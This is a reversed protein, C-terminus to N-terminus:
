EATLVFYRGQTESPDRQYLYTSGPALAEAYLVEEQGDFAVTVAYAESKPLYFKAIGQRNTKSRNLGAIRVEAGAVPQGEHDLVRLKATQHSSLHVALFQQVRGARGPVPGKPMADLVDKEYGLQKPTLWDPGYKLGLYEEPPSPVLYTEGLFDVESLNTFLTIPFPAGPYHPITGKTVRYCQWDIKIRYKLIKVSVYLDDHHVEVYFDTARLTEVVPDILDESFDHMDIISGLDLDDDWPILAQDRVAGLCTGQRLFFVVGHRDFIKKVEALLKEGDPVNMAPISRELQDILRANEANELDSKDM